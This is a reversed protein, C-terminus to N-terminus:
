PAKSYEEDTVPQLWNVAGGKSVTPNIAIHTFSTTPGAGHWHTVQPPITVSDGKQIVQVPKGEEQYYGTGHTVILLQGSPHMHWFTRAKPAFTVRSVVCDTEPNQQILVTVSVLGSFTTSAGM